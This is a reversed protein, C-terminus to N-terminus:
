DCHKCRIEAQFRARARRASERASGLTRQPRAALECRTPSSLPSFRNRPPRLAGCLCHLRKWATAEPAAQVSRPAGECFTNLRMILWVTPDKDRRWYRVRAVAQSRVIRAHPRGTPSGPPAHALPARGACGLPACNGNNGDGGGCNIVALPEVLASSTQHSGCARTALRALPAAQFPGVAPLGSTPQQM